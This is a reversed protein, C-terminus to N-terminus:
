EAMGRDALAARLACLAYYVRSKVTGVPLGLNAAAEKVTRDRFYTEVLVERHAPSLRRLADGITMRHLVQSMEDSRDAVPLNELNDAYTENPRSRTSRYDDIVIRRAVAVLWPRLSKGSDVDLKHANRWARLLTEQVVDEARQRDGGTLRLVFMLLAQAHQEYMARLLQEESGGNEEPRQKRGRRQGLPRVTAGGGSQSRRTLEGRRRAAVAAHRPRRSWTSEGQTGTAPYSM